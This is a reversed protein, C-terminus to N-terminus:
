VGLLAIEFNLDFARVTPRAFAREERRAWRSLGLTPVRLRDDPGGFAPGTPKAWGVSRNSPISGGPLEQNVTSGNELSDHGPKDRGDVGQEHLAALFVHIGAVLAPM